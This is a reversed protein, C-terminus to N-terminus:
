TIIHWHRFEAALIERRDMGRPECIEGPGRRALHYRPQRPPTPNDLEPAAVPRRGTLQRIGTMLHVTEIDRLRHDPQGPPALRPRCELNARENIGLDWRPRPRRFWRTM